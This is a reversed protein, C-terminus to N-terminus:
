RTKLSNVQCCGGIVMGGIICGWIAFFDQQEVARTQYASYAGLALGIAAFVFITLLWVITHGVNKMEGEGGGRYGSKSLDFVFCWNTVHATLVETLCLSAPSAPALMRDSTCRAFSHM